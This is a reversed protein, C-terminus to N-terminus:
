KDEERVEQYLAWWSKRPEFEHQVIWWFTIFLLTLGFVVM